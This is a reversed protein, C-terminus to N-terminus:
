KEKKLSVIAFCQIGLGQGFITMNEGSTATIGIRHIPINFIESLSKKLRAALTDIQPIKCELMIGITNIKFGEKKIKELIPKLYKKSDKVGKKNMPDAYFGLSNGGISQSLANFVAHLIVDGDSNARLKPYDPLLIGALTLGKKAKDFFHNDQGIGVRFDEPTEGLVVKLKLYDGQVTIKFNHPDAPTYAVKHNIAELLMAEDSTELNHKKANALAKKLLEYKAVQPTEAAFLKKRDYTKIIHKDNIEKITSFVYHGAICAGTKKAKKLCESIEEFSPLPNAGNHVLIIDENKAKDKLFGLGKELSSQRTLGGLIVSKVKQFHYNKVIKKINKQNYKNAVITIEKIEPHDNFAM